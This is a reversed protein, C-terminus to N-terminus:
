DTKGGNGLFRTDGCIPCVRAIRGFVRVQRRRGGHRCTGSDLPGLPCVQRLGTPRIRVSEATKLETENTM